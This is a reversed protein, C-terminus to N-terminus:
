YTLLLALYWTSRNTESANQIGPGASGLLDVHESLAYRFGAGLGTTAQGGRTDATEHTLEAGIALKRNVERSLAWGVLCFDRSDGGRNLECGGGGFTSWGSWDKGVWVPLLLSAHHEGDDASNERLIVRPFVAVDWGTEQQHRLRYKAALEIRGLDIATPGGVPRSFEVPVVATLQLDPAAGYNFDVGAAGAVEERTDTGGGFLYIEYHKYNTPEPDDTAYPPGAAALRSAAVLAAVVIGIRLGVWHLAFGQGDSLTRCM